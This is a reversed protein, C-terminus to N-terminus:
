WALFPVAGAALGALWPEIRPQIEPMHAACAALYNSVPGRNGLRLMENALSLCPPLQQRSRLEAQRLQDMALSVDERALSLLGGVTAVVNRVSAEDERFPRLRREDDHALNLLRFREADVIKLCQRIRFILDLKVLSPEVVFFTDMLVRAARVAREEASIRTAMGELFEALGLHWETNTPERQMGKRFMREISDTEGSISWRANQAVLLPKRAREFALEWLQSARPFVSLNEESLRWHPGLDLTPHNEILWLIHPTREESTAAAGLALLRTELDHPADALIEKLKTLDEPDLRRGSLIVRSPSFSNV